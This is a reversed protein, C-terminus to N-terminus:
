RIGLCMTANLFFHESDCRHFTARCSSTLTFYNIQKSRTQRGKRERIKVKSVVNQM